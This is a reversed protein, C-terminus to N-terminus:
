LALSLHSKFRCMEFICVLPDSIIELSSMSSSSSATKTLVLTVIELKDVMFVLELEWFTDSPEVKLLVFVFMLALVVAEIGVLLGFLLMM